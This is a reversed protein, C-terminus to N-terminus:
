NQLLFSNRVLKNPHVKLDETLCCVQLFAPGEHNELIIKPFSTIGHKQKEGPITGATDGESGYRFRYQNAAPEEIIKLFPEVTPYNEPIQEIEDETEKFFPNCMDSNLYSSFNTDVTPSNSSGFEENLGINSAPYLFDPFIYESLHQGSNQYESSTKGISSIREEDRHDMGQVALNCELL